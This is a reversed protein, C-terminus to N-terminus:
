PSCRRFCAIALTAFTIFVPYIMVGTIKKSMDDRRELMAAAHDLAEELSGSEEGIQMLYIFAQDFISEEALVSSCRQGTIVKKIIRIFIAHISKKKSFSKAIFSFAEPLSIGAKLLIALRHACRAQERISLKKTFLRTKIKRKKM